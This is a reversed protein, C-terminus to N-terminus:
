SRRTGTWAKARAVYDAFLPRIRDLDLAFTAPDKHSSPERNAANDAWWRRM